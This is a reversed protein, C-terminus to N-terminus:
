YTLDSYYNTEVLWEHLDLYEKIAKKIDQTYTEKVLLRIGNETAGYLRFIQIVKGDEEELYDIQFGIDYVHKDLRDLSNYLNDMEQVYEKMIGLTDINESSMISHWFTLGEPVYFIDAVETDIRIEAPYSSYVNM